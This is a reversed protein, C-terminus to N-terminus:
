DRTEPPPEEGLHRYTDDSTLLAPACSRGIRYVRCDGVWAVIWRARLLGTAACVAVTAAGLTAGHRAIDQAGAPSGDCRRALLVGLEEFSERIAAIAEPSSARNGLLNKVIDGPALHLMSFVIISLVLLIALTGLVRVVLM